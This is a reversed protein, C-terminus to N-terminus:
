IGGWCAFGTVSSSTEITPASNGATEAKRTRYRYCRGTLFDGDVACLKKRKKREKKKYILGCNKDGDEKLGSREVAKQFGASVSLYPAEVIGAQM